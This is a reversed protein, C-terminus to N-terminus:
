PCVSPWIDYRQLEIVLENRLLVLLLLQTRILNTEELPYMKSFAEISGEKVKADDIPPIRSPMSKAM